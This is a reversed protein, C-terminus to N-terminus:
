YLYHKIGCTDTVMSPLGSVVANYLTKIQEIQKRIAPLNELAVELEFAEKLLAAYHRDLNEIMKEANIRKGNFVKSEEKQDKEPMIDSGKCSYGSLIDINRNYGAKGSYYIYFWRYSNYASFYGKEDTLARIAADFNKNYMKGDFKRIIPKVEKIRGAAEKLATIKNKIAKIQNEEGYTMKYGKRAVKQGTAPAIRNM